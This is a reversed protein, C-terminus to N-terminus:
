LNTRLISKLNRFFITLISAKDINKNITADINSIVKGNEIVKIKGVVDGVKLPATVEYTELEYTVDRKLENKSNLINVEESPVVEAETLKGLEIKIKGIVKDQSLIKDITYMNFGYDLMSSTESNRITSSPENM